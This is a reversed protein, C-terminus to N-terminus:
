RAEKAPSVTLILRGPGLTRKAWGRLGDATAKRYRELDHNIYGPDGAFYAYENLLDARGDFGGLPMLQYLYTAEYQNKAKDLEGAGVRARRARAVEEDVIPLVEAAHHGPKCTVVIQFLSSLPASQQGVEVSQALRTDYVLREYLRGSKSGLIAALLDLEADGPAFLPPSPWVVWVRELSVRDTLKVDREATLRPQPPAKRARDPPPPSPLTGFYKEVLRRATPLTVDGAIAISANSPVYYKAFFTRVDALTAHELDEDEGIGLHHYPHDPPYINAFIAKPAMGYPRNDYSQRKENRVVDRQNDLKEQTLTDLLFGMRDSELWLGLELFNSPLLEWYNTRDTNTSGNVSGGAQQVLGVLAKDPVHASGQFMLHEFLHALGTKGPQEDRSGVHYWVDIAVLPVTHDEHVLVTLGNDLRLPTFSLLTAFLALAHM